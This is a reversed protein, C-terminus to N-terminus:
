TENAVVVQAPRLVRGGLRYGPRAVAAVTGAEVDSREQHLVAENVPVNFVAEPLDIQGSEKGDRDYVTATAKKTDAM